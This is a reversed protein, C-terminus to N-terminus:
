ARPENRGIKELLDEKTGRLVRAALHLDDTPQALWLVMRNSQTEGFTCVEFTQHHPDFLSVFVGGRGQVTQWNVEEVGLGKGPLPAGCTTLEWAPPPSFCERLRPALPGWRRSFRTGLKSDSGARTVM